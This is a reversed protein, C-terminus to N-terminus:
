NRKEKKWKFTAGYKEVPIGLNKQYWEKLFEDNESKFFIGGIGTVKQKM